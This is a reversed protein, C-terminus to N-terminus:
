LLQVQRDCSQIGLHSRDRLRDLRDLASEGLGLLFKLLGCLLRAM